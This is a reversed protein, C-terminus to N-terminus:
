CCATFTSTSHTLRFNRNLYNELHKTNNSMNTSMTFLLTCYLACENCYLVTFTSSPLPCNWLTCYLKLVTTYLVSTYPSTSLNLVTSIVTLVPTYLVISYLLSKSCYHVTPLVHMVTAYLLSPTRYHVTGYQTTRYLPTSIVTLVSDFKATSESWAQWYNVTSKIDFKTELM